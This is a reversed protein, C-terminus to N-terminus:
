SASVRLELGVRRPDSVEGSTALGPRLINIDTVVGRLGAVKGAFRDLADNIAASGVTRV